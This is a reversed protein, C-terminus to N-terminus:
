KGYIKKSYYQWNSSSYFKPTALPVMLFGAGEKILEKM